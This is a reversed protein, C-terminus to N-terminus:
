SRNDPKSGIVSGWLGGFSSTAFTGINNLTNQLENERQESMRLAHEVAKVENPTLKLITSIVPYLRKKESLDSSSM